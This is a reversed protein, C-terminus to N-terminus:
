GEERKNVVAALLHWVSERQLGNEAQHCSWQLIMNLFASPDEVPLRVKMLSPRVHHARPLRRFIYAVSVEKHLGTIGESFLAM